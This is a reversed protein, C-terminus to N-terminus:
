NRKTSVNPVTSRITRTSYKSKNSGRCRLLMCYLKMVRKTCIFSLFIFIGQGVTLFIFIYGFIDIYFQTYLFGFVWSAGTLCSLKLYVVISIQEQNSSLRSRQINIIVVVFCGVNFILVVSLPIGFTYVVMQKSSNICICGGYGIDSWDSTVLSVVINVSVSVLPAVVSYSIYAIMDRKEDRLSSMTKAKLSSFVRYMHFSCINMWVIASLYFYHILVGIVVCGLGLTTQGAGFQFLCLAILLNVSLFMNNKGPTTRLSKFLIYTLITLILFFISMTASILSLLSFAVKVIFRNGDCVHATSNDFTLNEVHTFYVYACMELGNVKKEYTGNAMCLKIMELCVSEPHFKVSYEDSSLFVRPCFSLKTVRMHRIPYQCSKTLIYGTPLDFLTEKTVPDTYRRTHKYSDFVIDGYYGSDLTMTFNYDSVVIHQNDLSSLETLLDDVSHVKYSFLGIHFLTYSVSSSESNYCQKKSPMFLPVFSCVFDNLVPSRKLMQHVSRSLEIGFQDLGDVCFDHEMSVRIYVDYSKISEQAYQRKCVGDIYVSGAACTIDRCVDKYRDYQQQSSCVETHHNPRPARYTLISFDLVATFAAIDFTGWNHNGTCNSQINNCLYCFVNRYLGKYLSTFAGCMDDLTKNYNDMDGTQNCRTIDGWRCVRSTINMGLPLRYILNCNKDRNLAHLLEDFSKTQIDNRSDCVIEITWQVLAERFEGNCLGCYSNRYVSTSNVKSVPLTTLFDSLNRPNHPIIECKRAIDTDGFESLCKHIMFYSSSASSNTVGYPLYQPRVCTEYSTENEYQLVDPCCNGAQFCKLSCSCGGCCSQTTTVPGSPKTTCLSIDPCYKEYLVAIEPLSGNHELFDKISEVQALLRLGIIVVVVRKAANLM